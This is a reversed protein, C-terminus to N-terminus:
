HPTRQCAALRCCDWLGPQLAPTLRSPTANSPSSFFWSSIPFVSRGVAWVVGKKQPPATHCAKLSFPMTWFCPSPWLVTLHSRSGPLYIRQSSRRAISSSSFFATLINLSSSCLFVIVFYEISPFSFYLYCQTELPSPSCCSCNLLFHDREIGNAAAVSIIDWQMLGAENTECGARVSFGFEQSLSTWNESTKELKWSLLTGTLGSYARLRAKSKLM